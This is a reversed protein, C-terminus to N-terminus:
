KFVPWSFYHSFQYKQTERHVGNSKCLLKLQQPQLSNYQINIFSQYPQQYSSCGIVHSLVSWFRLVYKQIRTTETTISFAFSALIHLLSYQSLKLMSFHASRSISNFKSNLINRPTTMTHLVKMSRWTVFFLHIIHKMPECRFQLVNFLYFHLKFLNTAESRSKVLLFPLLPRLAGCDAYLRISYKWQLHLSNKPQFSKGLDQYRSHISLSKPLILHSVVISTSWQQIRNSPTTM